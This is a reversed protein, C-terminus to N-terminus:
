ICWCTLWYSCGLYAALSSVSYGLCCGSCSGFLGVVVLVFVLYYLLIWFVGCGSISGSFWGRSYELSMPFGRVDLSAPGPGNPFLNARGVFVWVAVFSISVVPCGVLHLCGVLRPHFWCFLFHYILFYEGLLVVGLIIM